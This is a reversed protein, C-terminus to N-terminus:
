DDIPAGLESVERQNGYAAPNWVEMFRGPDALPTFGFRGYLGHADRTALVFRRLGQLAAHALICELLWKSLGRGRHSEMVFVDCLYAFTAGDTVVRAFGAQRHRDYLGFCLSGDIARRLVDLPVGAAWYSRNALFDHVAAVDILNRDTSVLLEGRRYTVSQDDCWM